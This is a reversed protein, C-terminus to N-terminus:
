KNETESIIDKPELTEQLSESRISKENEDRYISDLLILVKKERTAYSNYHDILNTVWFYKKHKIYYDFAMNVANTRVTSSNIETIINVVLNNEDQALVKELLKLYQEDRRSYSNIKQIANFAIRNNTTDNDIVVEIQKEEVTNKKSTESSLLIGFIRIFAPWALIFGFFIIMILAITGVVNATSKLTKFDDGMDVVKEIDKVKKTKTKNYVVVASLLGLIATFLKIWDDMISGYCFTSYKDIPKILHRMVGGGIQYGDAKV